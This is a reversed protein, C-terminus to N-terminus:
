QKLKISYAAVPAFAAASAGTDSLPYDKTGGANIIGNYFPWDFQNNAFTCNVISNYFTNYSPYVFASMTFAVWNLGFAEDQTFIKCTKGDKSAVFASMHFTGGKYSTSPDADNIWVFNLQKTDPNKKDVSVVVNSALTASSLFACLMLNIYQIKM